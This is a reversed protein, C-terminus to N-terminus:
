IGEAVDGAVIVGDQRIERTHGLWMMSFLLPERFAQFTHLKGPWSDVGAIRKQVTSGDPMALDGCNRARVRWEVTSWEDGEILNQAELSIQDFGAFMTAESDRIAQRGQNPAPFFPHVQVADPAFCAAFTDVDGAAFSKEIRAVLESVASM